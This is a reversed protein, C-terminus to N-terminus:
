EAAIFNRVVAVLEEPAGVAVDHQSDVAGWPIHPFDRRMREMIEPTYRDSRLGRIFLIPCTVRALEHWVDLNRLRPKPAGAVQSQTNRYDPDRLLMYGGDVAKLAREARNRDHAFRPPNPRKAFPAMAAEVSPFMVPPNGVSVHYGGPNGSAMNSDVVVLRSLQGAFNAAFIISLRPKKM